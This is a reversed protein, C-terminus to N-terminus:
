IAGQPMVLWEWLMGSPTSVATLPIDSARMLLQYYGDVLDLASYLTCGAMNNQLVDKRPIPTQAPITAANLKNYAHVIRWKGNPKKVCFTPTSHPSKSERVMGAAHKARFFDDIVDCQEKPLPWQRTVCYKTGPVLDIEHRVGRDPPLASPPNHCVVDQFEKVLPYFPDSPDKLISSGSRASLAAKTDELVSEDMLSSSNLETDPRIVALESLEGAKLAQSFEGDSMEDLECLADVSPLTELCVSGDVRGTVGNVLTYLTNIIESHSQSSAQRKVAAVRRRSQRKSVKSGKPTPVINDGHNSGVMTHEIRSSKDQGVNPTTGERGGVGYPSDGVVGNGANLTTGERGDVSYPTDGVIDNSDNSTTGERGGVSYPTDGVIDNSVNPTTGERGGVSYPTDGVIDNGVNLATSERGVASPTTERAVM